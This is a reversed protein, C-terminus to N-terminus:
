ITIKKAAAESDIIHVTNPVRNRKHSRPSLITVSRTLHTCGRVCMVSSRAKKTIDQLAIM